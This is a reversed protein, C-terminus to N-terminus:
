FAAKAWGDINFFGKVEWPRVSKRSKKTKGYALNKEGYQFTHGKLETSHELASKLDTFSVREEIQALHMSDYTEVVNGDKDIKLVQFGKYKQRVRNM